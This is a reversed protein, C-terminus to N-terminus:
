ASSFFVPESIVFPRREPTIGVQLKEASLEEGILSDM